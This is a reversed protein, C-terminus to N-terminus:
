KGSSEGVVEKSFGRDAGSSLPQASLKRTVTGKGYAHSFAALAAAIGRLEKTLRDQEKKLLRFVRALNSMSKGRAPISDFRVRYGKGSQIDGPPYQKTEVSEVSRAYVELDPLVTHPKGYEFTESSGLHGLNLKFKHHELQM